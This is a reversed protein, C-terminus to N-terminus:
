QLDAECRSLSRLDTLHQPEFTSASWKTDEAFHIGVFYGYERYVCYSVCGSLWVGNGANTSITVLAGPAIAEEVQVCAGLASIDELVGEIRRFEDNGAVWDIQVFDACLFRNELRREKM